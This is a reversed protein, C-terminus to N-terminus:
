NVGGVPNAAVVHVHGDQQLLLLTPQQRQRQLFVMRRLRCCTAHHDVHSGMSQHHLEQLIGTPRKHTPLCPQLWDHWTCFITNPLRFQHVRQLRRGHRKWLLQVPRTSHMPAPMPHLHCLCHSGSRDLINRNPLFHISRKPLLHRSQQHFVSLLRHIGQINGTSLVCQLFIGPHLLLSWSCVPNSLNSLIWFCLLRAIGAQLIHKGPCLCLHRSFLYQLIHKCQIPRLNRSFVAQVCYKGNSSCIHRPRVSFVWNCQNYQFVDWLRLIYVRQCRCDIYLVRKPVRCVCQTSCTLINRPSMRSVSGRHQM